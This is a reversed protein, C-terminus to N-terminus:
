DIDNIMCPVIKMNQPFFWKDYWHQIRTALRWGRELTSVAQLQHQHCTQYAQSSLKSYSFFFNFYKRTYPAISDFGAYYIHRSLTSHCSNRWNYWCGAAKLFNDYPSSAPLRFSQPYHVAACLAPVGSVLLRNPLEPVNQDMFPNM